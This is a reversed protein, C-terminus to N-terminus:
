PSAAPDISALRLQADTPPTNARWVETGTADFLVFEPSYTFGYIARLERGVATHIDVRLVNVQDGLRAILADVVPRASMCGMCFNSYFELLTPKGSGIQAQASDVSAVDSAGVRFVFFAGTFVLAIVVGVILTSRWDIRRWRMFSLIVILTGLGLFVFSYQNTITM